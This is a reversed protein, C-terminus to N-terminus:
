VKRTLMLRLWFEQYVIIPEEFGALELLKTNRAPTITHLDNSVFDLAGLIRDDTETSALVNAKWLEFLTEYTEPEPMLDAFVFMAGPKLRAAIDRLLQLKGEETGDDPLFHLVLILTAADFRSENLEAVPVPHWSIDLEAYQSRGQALMESAIDQACVHVGPHSRAISAAEQGTGAGVVLVRSGADLPGLSLNVLEHLLEYHPFLRRIHKNYGPARENWEEITMSM